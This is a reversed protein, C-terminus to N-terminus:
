VFGVVHWKEKIRSLFVWLMPHSIAATTDIPATWEKRFSAFRANRRPYNIVEYHYVFTILIHKMGMLFTGLFSGLIGVCLVNLEHCNENFWPFLIFQNFFFDFNNKFVTTKNVWWKVENITKVRIWSIPWTSQKKKYQLCHGYVSESLCWLAWVWKTRNNM